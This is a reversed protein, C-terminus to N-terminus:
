TEKNQTLEPFSTAGAVTKFTKWSPIEFYDIIVNKGCFLLYM